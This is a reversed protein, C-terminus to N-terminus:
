RLFYDIYDATAIVGAAVADPPLSENVDSIVVRGATSEKLAKYLEEAPMDWGKPQGSPQKRGQMRATAKDLPIFAVLDNRTM